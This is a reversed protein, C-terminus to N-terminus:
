ATSKEKLFDPMLTWAMFSHPMKAKLVSINIVSSVKLHWAEQGFITIFPNFFLLTHTHKTHVHTMERTHVCVSYKSPSTTYLMM